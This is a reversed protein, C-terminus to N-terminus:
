TQTRNASALTSAPKALRAVDPATLVKLLAMASLRRCQFFLRSPSTRYRTLTLLTLQQPFPRPAHQVEALQHQLPLLPMSM